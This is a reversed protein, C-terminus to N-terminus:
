KKQGSKFSKTPPLIPGNDAQGAQCQGLEELDCDVLGLKKALVFSINRWWWTLKKINHESESQGKFNALTPVLQVRTPRRMHQSIM